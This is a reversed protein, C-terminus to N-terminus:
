WTQQFESDRKMEKQYSALSTRGLSSSRTSRRSIRTRHASRSGPSPIRPSTKPSTNTDTNANMTSSTIINSVGTTGPSHADSNKPAQSTPSVATYPDHTTSQNPTACQSRATSAIVFPSIFITPFDLHRTLSYPWLCVYQSFHQPDGRMSSARPDPRAFPHSQSQHPEPQSQSPTQSQTQSLSRSRSPLSAISTHRLKARFVPFWPAIM